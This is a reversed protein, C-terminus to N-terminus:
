MMPICYFIYMFPFLLSNRSRNIFLLRYINNFYVQKQPSMYGELLYNFSCCLGYSSYSTKISKGCDIRETNWQCSEFVDECNILIKVFEVVKWKNANLFAKLKDIEEFEKSTYSHTLIHGYKLINLAFERSVNEPLIANELIALRKRMPIPMTPCITVAPFPAKFIPEDFTLIYTNTPNENYRRLFQMVMLSLGIFCSFITVSWLIKGFTGVKIDTKGFYQLGHM